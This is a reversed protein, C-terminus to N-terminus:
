RPFANGGAALTAAIGHANDIAARVVVGVASEFEKDVIAGHRRGSSQARRPPVKRGSLIRFLEFAADCQPAVSPRARVIDPGEGNIDGWVGNEQRRLVDM